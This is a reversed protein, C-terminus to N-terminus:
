RKNLEEEVFDTWHGRSDPHCLHFSISGDEEEKIETFYADEHEKVEWEVEYIDGGIVAFGGNEAYLDYDEDTFHETDIDLLKLKGKCRIDISM